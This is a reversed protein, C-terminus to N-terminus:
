GKVDKFANPAVSYYVTVSEGPDLTLALATKLIVTADALVHGDKVVGQASGTGALVGGQVYVIETYPGPNAYAVGSAPLTLPSVGLKFGASGPGGGVEINHHFRVNSGFSLGPAMTYLTTGSALTNDHVLLDTFVGTGAFRLAAASSATPIGTIANDHISTQIATSILNNLWIGYTSAGAADCVNDGIIVLGAGTPAVQIVSFNPSASASQQIMNGTITVHDYSGVGIGCNIAGTIKNNAITVHTGSANDAHIGAGTGTHTITNGLCLSNNSGLEIGAGTGTPQAANATVVNDTGGVVSFVQSPGRGRNNAVRTFAGNSVQFALGASVNVHNEVVAAYNILNTANSGQVNIGSVTGSGSLVVVNGIVLPGDISASTATCSIGAHNCNVVRNLVVHTRNAGITEIGIWAANQAVVNQVLGDDAAATFQICDLGNTGTQTNQNGDVVGPGFISVDAATVTIVSGSIGAKALLTAGAELKFSQGATAITLGSVLYNGPPFYVCGAGAAVQAAHISATDDTTGNGAAGYAMVNFVQGGWDQLAARFASGVTNESSAFELVTTGGAGTTVDDITIADGAAAGASSATLGAGAAVGVAAAGAAAGLRLLHRRSSTPSGDSGPPPVTADAQDLVETMGSGEALASASLGDM